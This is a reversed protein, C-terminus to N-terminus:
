LGCVKSLQQNGSGRSGNTMLQFKGTFKLEALLVGQVDIGVRETILIPRNDSDLSRIIVTARSEGVAYGSITIDFKKSEVNGPACFFSSEAASLNQWQTSVSSLLMSGSPNGLSIGEIMQYTRQPGGASSHMQLGIFSFLDVGLITKPIGANLGFAYLRFQM